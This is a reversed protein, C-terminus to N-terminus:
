SCYALRLAPPALVTLLTAPRNKKMQVPTGFVDLAGEAIERDIDEAQELMNVAQGFLARAEASRGAEAM